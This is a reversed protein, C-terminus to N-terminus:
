KGTDFDFLDDFFLDTINTFLDLDRQESVRRRFEALQDQSLNATAAIQDLVNARSVGLGESIGLAQLAPNIGGTAVDFAQQGTEKAINAGLDGIARGRGIQANALAAELSGGAPLQSLISREASRFAQEISSKGSAFEATQSPDFDGEAFAALREFVPNRVTGVQSFIQRAIDALGGTAQPGGPVTGGDTPIGTGDAPPITTGPTTGPLGGGPFVDPVEGPIESIDGSPLSASVDGPIGPIGSPVGPIGGPVDPVASPVPPAGTEPSTFFDGAINPLTNPNARAVTNSLLDALKGGLAPLPNQTLLSVGTGIKTGLNGFGKGSALQFAEGEPLAEQPGEVPAGFDFGTLGFDPGPDFDSPTFPQPGFDLGGLFQEAGFPASPAGGFGASANIAGVDGFSGVIGIGDSFGPGGDVGGPIDGM